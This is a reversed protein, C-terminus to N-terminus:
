RPLGLGRAILGRQVDNTGGGVVYMISQRLGYEFAGGGPIESEGTGSLAAAPGFIALTAEGFDESLDGGMVGAMAADFMAGIDTSSAQVAATVLARTAQVRVALDTIMARKASGRPGALREPDTRVFELLDDLQRHLAAAINGMTIREGALADVIVSWGGNIEGVRASDPVRVNDYFVTCSVEGSLATHQQITVGPTKLPFLFV